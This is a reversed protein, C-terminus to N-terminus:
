VKLDLEQYEQCDKRGKLISITVKLDEIKEHLRGVTDEAIKAHTRLLRLEKFVNQLEQANVLVKTDEKFYDVKFQELDM